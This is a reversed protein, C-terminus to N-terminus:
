FFQKATANDKGAAYEFGPVSGIFSDEGYNVDIKDGTM